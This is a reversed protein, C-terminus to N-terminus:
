RTLVRVWVPEGVAGLYYDARHSLATDSTRKSDIERAGAM